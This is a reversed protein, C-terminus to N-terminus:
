AKTEKAFVWRRQIQFSIFFLLLDVISKIITTDIGIKGFIATVLIWSTLAQLVCLVYYKVITKGFKCKNRFVACKNSVFNFLSSFIRAIVTALFICSAANLNFFFLKSFLAFLGIDFLYSTLGIFSFRFFCGFLIRYIRASDKVTDFHTARNSNFYITQIKEEVINIKEQVAKILMNIEYEFREGPLKLCTKTFEYPIGRLGTQTDNIKKSYLLRFVATTIKNGNKSKFPVIEENFDRTGLILSEKEHTLRFAVKVIDEASHQGDADATVIGSMEERSFTNLFYNLGTKIARGKGLNVAHNLIICEPNKGIKDFYQQSDKKSGDNVVIIKEIGVSILESILEVTKEYPDLSPILIVANLREELTHAM